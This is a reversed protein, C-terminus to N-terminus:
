NSVKKRSPQLHRQLQRPVPLRTRRCSTSSCFSPLLVGLLWISPRPPRMRPRLVSLILGSQQHRLHEEKKGELYESKERLRLGQDCTFFKNIIRLLNNKDKLFQLESNLWLLRHNLDKEIKWILQLFNNLIWNQLVKRCTQHDVVLVWFLIFITRQLVTWRFTEKKPHIEPRAIPRSRYRPGKCRSQSWPNHRPHITKRRVVSLKQVSSFPDLWQLRWAQHTLQNKFASRSLSHVM